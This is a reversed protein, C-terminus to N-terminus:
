LNSALNFDGSLPAVFVNGFSNPASKDKRYILAPMKENAATM